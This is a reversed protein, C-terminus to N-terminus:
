QTQIGNFIATSFEARSANDTVDMFNTEFVTTTDIANLLVVANYFPYSPTVNDYIDDAETIDYGELSFARQVILAMQSKTMKEKPRFTGDSFGGIIGKEQVAEIDEEFRTTKSSVDKFGQGEGSYDFYRNIIAAAQERTVDADPRFTGDTNGSIIDQSTLSKVAEFAPDDEALDPFLDSLPAKSAAVEDQNSFSAVRKAGAYKPGWYPNSLSVLQIGRSSTANYFKNNGAYIGVHSIGRRYTNKFFVLDGEQLNSRSVSQGTDYQSLTDRPISIGMKGFVYQTFGSCDFGSPTTGGFVYPVGIYQKSISHLKEESAADAEKSPLVLVTVFAIAVFFLVKKLM